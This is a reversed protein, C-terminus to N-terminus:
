VAEVKVLPKSRRKVTPRDAKEEKLTVLAQKRIGESGGLYEQVRARDALGDTEACGGEGDAEGIGTEDISM